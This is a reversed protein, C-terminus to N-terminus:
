AVFTLFFTNPQICIVNPFSSILFHSFSTFALLVSLVLFVVM